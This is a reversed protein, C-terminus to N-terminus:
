NLSITCDLTQLYSLPASINRAGRHIASDAIELLELKGEGPVM